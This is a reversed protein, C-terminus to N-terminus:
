VLATKGDCVRGVRVSIGNEESEEELMREIRALKRETGESFSWRATKWLTDMQKDGESIKSFKSLCGYTLEGSRLHAVLGKLSRADGEIVTSGDDATYLAIYHRFEDPETGQYGMLADGERDEEFSPDRIFFTGEDDLSISSLNKIEDVISTIARSGIFVEAGTPKDAPASSVPIIIHSPKNSPRPVFAPEPIEHSFSEADVTLPVPLLRAARSSQFITRLVRRKHLHISERVTVQEEVETTAFRTKKPTPAGCDCSSTKEGGEHSAADRQGKEVYYSVHEPRSPMNEHWEPQEDDEHTHKRKQGAYQVVELLPEEQEMDSMQDDEKEVLEQLTNKPGQEPPSLHDEGDSDSDNSVPPTPIANRQKRVEIYALVADTIQKSTVEKRLLPAIDYGDNKLLKLRADKNVKQTWSNAIMVKDLSWHKQDITDQGRQEGDWTQYQAPQQLDANDSQEDDSMTTDSNRESIATHTAADMAAPVVIRPVHFQELNKASPVAVTDKVDFYKGNMAGILEKDPRQYNDRINALALAREWQAPTLARGPRAVVHPFPKEIKSLRWPKLTKWLQPGSLLRSRWGKMLLIKRPARKTSVVRKTPRMPKKAPNPTNESSSM